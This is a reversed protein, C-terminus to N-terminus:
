KSAGLIFLVAATSYLVFWGLRQWNWDQWSGFTHNLLDLAKVIVLSVLLLLGFKAAFPLHWSHYTYPRFEHFRHFRHFM